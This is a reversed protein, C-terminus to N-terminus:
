WVSTFFFSKVVLNM